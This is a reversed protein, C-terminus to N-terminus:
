GKWWPIDLDAKITKQENKSLANFFTYGTEKEVDKVSMAYDWLQSAKTSENPLIFGLCRQHKFSYVVKYFSKPLPIDNIQEPNDDYLPGTVIYLKGGKTHTWGRITSELSGWAQRNLKPAQLAINSMAFTQHNAVRSFDIAASPALHGKDYGTNRFADPQVRHKEPLDPDAYFEDSREVDIGISGKSIVYSAWAACKYKYSYGVSYGDRDLVIDTKCPEGLKKHDRLVYIWTYTKHRNPWLYTAYVYHAAAGAIASGVGVVICKLEM